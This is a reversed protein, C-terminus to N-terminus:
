IILIVPHIKFGSPNDPNYFITSSAGHFWSTTIHDQWAKPM